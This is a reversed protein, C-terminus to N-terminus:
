VLKDTPPSSIKPWPTSRANKSAATFIVFYHTSAKMIQTVFPMWFTM